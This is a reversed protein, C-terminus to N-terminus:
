AFHEKKTNVRRVGEDLTYPHVHVGVNVAWAAKGENESAFCRMLRM